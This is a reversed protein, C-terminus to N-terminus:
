FIWGFLFCVIVLIPPPIKSFSNMLFVFIIIMLSVLGDSQNFELFYDKLLYVSTGLLLGVTVSGIGEMSRYLYVNTKLSEWIPFFFFLLLMGPLFIFISSIIIGFIQEAKGQNKLSIGGVYASISFVPGPIAKVLGYGSLLETKNVTIIEPNRKKIKLNNPREVYQDIMMPLLVDGGGFVISGFRYTHESLNILNKEKWQNKRATESLFGLTIFITFFIILYKWSFNISVKKEIAPFRKNSFNTVLAGTIFLIPIIWPQKIFAFILIASFIMVFKTITNNIHNKYSRSTAYLLFGIAMPQIFRFLGLFLKIYILYSIIFSFSGMIFCAPLLWILLTFIALSIGGKKYAILTILQTSSPGPLLQCFNNYEFLEEETIFKKKEVFRKLIMGIHGQPGGFATISHYFVEKLFDKHNTLYM